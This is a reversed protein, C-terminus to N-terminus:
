PTKEKQNKLWLGGSLRVRDPYIAEIVGYSTEDGVRYYKGYYEIMNRGECVMYHYPQNIELKLSDPAFSGVSGLPRSVNEVRQTVTFFHNTVVTDISHVEQPVTHSIGWGVVIFNCLAACLLGTNIAKPLFDFATSKETKHKRSAM